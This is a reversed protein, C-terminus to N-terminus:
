GPDADEDEGEGKGQIIKKCRRAGRAEVKKKTSPGVQLTEGPGDQRGNEGV